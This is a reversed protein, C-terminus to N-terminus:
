QRERTFHLLRSRFLYHLLVGLVLGVVYGYPLALACVGVVLVIVFNAISTAMDRCLVMLALAEFLLM